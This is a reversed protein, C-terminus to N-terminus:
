HEEPFKETIQPVKEGQDSSGKNRSRETSISKTCKLFATELNEYRKDRISEM